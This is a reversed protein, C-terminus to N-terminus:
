RSDILTFSDGANPVGDGNTDNWEYAYYQKGLSGFTAAQSGFWYAGAATGASYLGYVALVLTGSLPESAAYVVFYDHHATLSTEPAAVLVTGDDSRVLSLTAGDDVAFVPAARTSDMYAIAKQGFGGGAAVYTDGPGTTPQGSIPQITGPAGQAVTAVHASPCATALATAIAHGAADDPAIADLVVTASANQCVNKVVVDDCSSGSCFQKTSCAGGCAGCNQPDKALDACFSGDCCTENSACDSASTCPAACEGDPACHGSPCASPTCGGPDGADFGPADVDADVGGGDTGGAPTSSCGLVFALTAASCALRRM